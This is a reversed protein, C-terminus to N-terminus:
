MYYRFNTYFCKEDILTTSTPWHNIHENNLFLEGSFFPWTHLFVYLTWFIKLFDIMKECKVICVQSLDKKGNQNWKEGFLYVFVGATCLRYVHVFYKNKSYICNKLIRETINIIVIYKLYVDLVIQNFVLLCYIFISIKQFHIYNQQTGLCSKMFKQLSFIFMIYIYVCM